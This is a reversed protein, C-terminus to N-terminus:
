WQTSPQSLLILLHLVLYSHAQPNFAVVVELKDRIQVQSLLDRKDGRKEM